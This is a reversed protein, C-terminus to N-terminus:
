EPNEEACGDPVDARAHDPVPVPPFPGITNWNCMKRDPFVNRYDMVRSTGEDLHDYVYNCVFLDPIDEGFEGM